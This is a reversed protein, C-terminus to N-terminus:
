AVLLTADDVLATVDVLTGVVDLMGDDDVGLTAGVDVTDVLRALVVVRYRM